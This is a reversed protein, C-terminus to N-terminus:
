TRRVKLPKIQGTPKFLSPYSESLFSIVADKPMLTELLFSDVASLAVGAVVGGPASALGLGIGLGNSIVFRVARGVKSHVAQRIRKGFGSVRERLEKDSLSKSGSLWEKFAKCEDTERVKLLKHVDVVSSGFEPVPLGKLATVRSFQQEDSAPIVSSVTAGLKADFLGRDKESFGSLASYAQMSAIRDDMRGLAIMASEIIRHAELDPLRYRRRLDNEVAFEDDAKQKVRLDHLVPIIGLRRLEIQVATNLLSSTLDRYWSEFVSKSYDPPELVRGKILEARLGPNLTSLTGELKEEAGQVRLVSFEYHFLPLSRKPNASQFTSRAQGTQGFTFGPCQFKLAGSEILLALGATRCSHQLLILDELWISQLIYTDFLLLRTIFAALDVSVVRNERDQVAIPAFLRKTIDM